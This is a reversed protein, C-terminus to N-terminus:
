VTETACNLRVEEGSAPERVEFKECMSETPVIPDNVPLQPGEVKIHDGREGVIRGIVMRSPTKPEPCLVLDGYSPPSARWLVVWDGGRLTPALSAAFYPDNLPIQWWRIATLRLGGILVGIILSTWALIRLFKWM